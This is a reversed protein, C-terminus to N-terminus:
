QQLWEIARNLQQDKKEEPHHQFEIFEDVGVNKDYRQKNRDIFVGQSIVLALEDNIKDFGNGTTYGATTEGIFRTNNRGKFAIALMEGSSITYRSLLIAVKEDSSIQPENNMACVLRGYNNFQGAEITYTRIEGQNNIGGGIFGDGILPALGAIMPDVNGGGNFRLDVIWKSAGKEKLVLLGKRIFDAQEKVDGPGIGVIKLYGVGHDLLAYSFTASVDNIVTNVFEADRNDKEQMKGTYNVFISYDKTSRITAHKDGISNILYQLGEKLEESTTKDKTLAKFKKNVKAWDVQATFFSTEKVQQVIPHLAETQQPINQCSSIALWGFLLIITNISKIHM